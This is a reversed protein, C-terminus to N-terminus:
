DDDELVGSYVFEILLATLPDATIVGRVSDGLRLKNRYAFFTM